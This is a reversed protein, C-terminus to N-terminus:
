GSSHLSHLGEAMSDSVERLLQRKELRNRLHPDLSQLAPILQRVEKKLEERMKFLMHGTDEHLVATRLGKLSKILLAAEEATFIALMAGMPACFFWVLGGFDGFTAWFCSTTFLHLMPLVVVGGLIKWTGKVSMKNVKRAQWDSMVALLVGAPAMTLGWPILIVSFVLVTVVRVLSRLLLKQREYQSFAKDKFRQVQYDHVNYQNLLESYESCRAHFAQLRSENKVNRFGAAVSQTLAVNDAVSLRTGLPLYLRRVTRYLELTEVDKAQLTVASMGAMVLEMVAMNAEHKAEKGGTMWMDVISQDVEIPDGFDVSVTSRFKHSSFYNLGVPVVSIKLPEPGKYKAMAGLVMTSIGWKLPLLKTGDHTGGEPFIGITGGRSLHTYVNEFMESQDVYPLFSYATPAPLDRAVKSPEEPPAKVSQTVNHDFNVRSGSRKMGGAGADDRRDKFSGTSRLSDNSGNRPMADVDSDRRERVFDTSKNIISGIASLATVKIGDFEFDEQRYIDYINWTVGCAIQFSLMYVLPWWDAPFFRPLYQSLPWFLLCCTLTATRVSMARHYSKIDAGEAVKVTPVGQMPGALVLETDSVVDAVKGTLKGFDPHKVIIVSGKTLEQTFRTGGSGTVSKGAAVIFGAGKKESDEPRVVPIAKIARAIGGVDRRHFSKAATM